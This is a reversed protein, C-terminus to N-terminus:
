IKIKTNIIKLENIIFIFALLVFGVTLFAILKQMGSLYLSAIGLIFTIIWYFVAIRRRGWGIELLRHHFHGWDARFPSKKNKIRRLISYVADISPISLILLATGIKGFSLISLIGLIFGAFSGGGYGPMIKQPYFNHPLFGIFAGATIFSLLVVTQATIDHATFRQALLGLFIAAIAVFGPLQGDIGKSWNVMNTTWTLWILAILDGWVLIKHVGFFNFALQFQDLRIPDGFPNSIFPIGLGFGIVIGSILLNAFFRYYASIDYIDDLIGMIVLLSSALLIGFVIKNMEVFLLVGLLFALFIPIGGGRPVIGKHTHAPHKRKKSDTTLNLKRAFKITPITIFFSFLFTVLLAIFLNM